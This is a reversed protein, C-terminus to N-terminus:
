MASNNESDRRLEEYHYPLQWTTPVYSFSTPYLKKM